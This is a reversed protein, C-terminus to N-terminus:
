NAVQKKATLQAWLAGNGETIRNWFIVRTYRTPTKIEMSLHIRGATGSGMLGDTSATTSSVQWKYASADGFLQTSTANSNVAQGINNVTEPYWDINDQSHEIRMRLINISTSATYQVLLFAGDAGSNSAASGADYSLTTTATGPTMYVVTTTAANSYANQFYSPNAKVVGASFVLAALIMLGAVSVFSFINRNM